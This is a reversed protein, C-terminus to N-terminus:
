NHLNCERLPKKFIRLFIDMWELLLLPRHLLRGALIYRVQWLKLVRAQKTGICSFFAIFDQFIPAWNVIHGVDLRELRVILKCHWLILAELAIIGHLVALGFRAYRHHIVILLHTYIDIIALLIRGYAWYFRSRLGNWNLLHTHLCGLQFRALGWILSTVWIELIPYILSEDVSYVAQLIAAWGRILILFSGGREVFSAFLGWLSQQCRGM